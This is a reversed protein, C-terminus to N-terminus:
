FLWTEKASLGKWAINQRLAPLYICICSKLCKGSQDVTWKLTHKHDRTRKFNICISEKGSIQALYWWSLKETFKWEAWIWTIWLERTIYTNKPFRITGLLTSKGNTTKKGRLILAANLVRPCVLIMSQPPPGHPKHTRGHPKIGGQLFLFLVFKIIQTNNDQWYFGRCTIFAAHSSRRVASWGGKVTKQPINEIGARCCVHVTNYRQM